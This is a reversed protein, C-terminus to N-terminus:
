DELDAFEYAEVYDPDFIEFSQPEDSIELFRVPGIPSDLLFGYGALNSLCSSIEVITPNGSVIAIKLYAEMGMINEKLEDFSFEMEGEKNEVCNQFWYTSELFDAFLSDLTENEKVVLSVNEFIGGRYDRPMFVIEAGGDTKEKVDVVKGYFVFDKSSFLNKLDQITM